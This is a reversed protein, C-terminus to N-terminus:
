AGMAEALYDKKYFDSVIRKAEEHPLEGFAIKMLLSEYDRQISYEAINQAWCWGPFRHDMEEQLKKYKAALPKMQREAEKIKQALMRYEPSEKKLNERISDSRRCGNNELDKLKNLYIQKILSLIGERM